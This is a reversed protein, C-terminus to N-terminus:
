DLQFQALYKERTAADVRERQKSRTSSATRWAGPRGHRHGPLLPLRGRAHLRDARRPRQLEHQRAGPLRDPREFAECCATRSRPNRDSTSRRSGRATTSTRSRRSRRGCSTSGSACTPTTSADDAAADATSRRRPQEERVPAVLLMYPSEQGPSSTSGSAPMAGAARVPRVPPLERPVQDEPEDDGADDALAPRRPHQARGPGAPRVGDPGPVLRGGQRRGAAAAVHEVLEAEDDFREHRAARGARPVPRGGGTRSGRASSAGRSRHGPGASRRPKDLLQHWVFLAAGLAGGADGAAPQIWIDDFPGERLLRGNAVCNLAVGGALVLHKMGTRATCTAASGCCSRRPSRRSAPPWTWTGSSSRRSRSRAAPRRLPRHFRRGTM